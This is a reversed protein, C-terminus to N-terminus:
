LKNAFTTIQTECHDTMTKYGYDNLLKELKIYSQEGNVIHYSAIAFNIQNNKMTQMAGKIAEFEAGEVDMKIFNIKPISNKKVFTDICTVPRLATNIDLNAGFIFSSAFGKQPCEVFKLNGEASWIGTNFAFVNKLSNLEINKILNNYNNADPEFAYVTGREGVLKAAYITFHGLFAGADIVIDGDKPTYKEVYKIVAYIDDNWFPSFYTKFACNHTKETLYFYNNRYFCTFGGKKLHNYYFCRLINKLRSEPFIDFIKRLLKLIIM